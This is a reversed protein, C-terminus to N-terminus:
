ISSALNEYRELGEVRAECWATAAQITRVFQMVRRPDHSAAEMVYQMDSSSCCVARRYEYVTIYRRMDDCDGVVVTGWDVWGSKEIHPWSFPFTAFVKPRPLPVQPNTPKLLVGVAEGLDELTYRVLDYLSESM